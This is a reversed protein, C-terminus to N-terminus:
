TPGGIRYMEEAIYAMNNAWTNGCHDDQILIERRGGLPEVIMVIEAAGERKYESDEYKVGQSDIYRRKVIDELLNREELTLDIHYIKAM